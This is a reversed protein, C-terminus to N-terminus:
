RRAQDSAFGGCREDAETGICEIVKYFLAQHWFGAYQPFFAAGPIDAFEVGRCVGQRMFTSLRDDDSLVFAPLFLM